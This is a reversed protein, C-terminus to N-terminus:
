LWPLDPVGGGASCPTGRKLLLLRSHLLPRLFAARQWTPSSDLCATDRRVQFVLPGKEDYTSDIYANNSALRMTYHARCCATSPFAQGIYLSLWGLPSNPWVSRGIIQCLRSRVDGPSGVQAHHGEGGARRDGPNHRVVGHRQVGDAPHVGGGRLARGVWCDSSCWGGAAGRAKVAAASGAAPRCGGGARRGGSGGQATTTTKCRGAARLAAAGRCGTIRAARCKLSLGLSYRVCASLWPAAASRVLQATTCRRSCPQATFLPVQVNVLASPPQIQELPDLHSHQAHATGAASAGM